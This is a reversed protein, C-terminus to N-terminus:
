SLPIPLYETGLYIRPSHDLRIKGLGEKEVMGTLVCSFSRTSITLTASPLCSVSSGSYFGWM